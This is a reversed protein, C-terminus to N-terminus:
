KWTWHIFFCLFKIRFLLFSDVISGQWFKLLNHKHCSQWALVALWSALWDALLFRLVLQLWLMGALFKKCNRTWMEFEESNTYSNTSSNTCILMYALALLDLIPSSFPYRDFHLSYFSLKKRKTEEYWQILEEVWFSDEFMYFFRIWEMYGSKWQHLQENTQEFTRRGLIM